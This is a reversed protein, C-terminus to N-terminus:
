RVWHALQGQAALRSQAAAFNYPFAGEVRVAVIPIGQTIAVYRSWPAGHGRATPQCQESGGHGKM